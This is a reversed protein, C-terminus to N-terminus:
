RRRRIGALGALGLLALVGPAPVFSFGGVASGPEGNEFYDFRATGDIGVTDAAIVSLRAVLVRYDGPGYMVPTGQADDPTIYYSGNLATFQTGDASWALDGVTATADGTSNWLGIDVFTDFELSPFSPFLLENPATFAMGFGNQYFTGGTVTYDLGEGPIPTGSVASLFDLDSDFQAFVDITYDAYPNDVTDYVIGLFNASATGALLGVGALMTLTKAKM